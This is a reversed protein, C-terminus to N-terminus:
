IITIIKEDAGSYHRWGVKLKVRDGPSLGFACFPFTAIGNKIEVQRYPLYGANAELYVRVTVDDVLADTNKSYLEIAYDAKADATISDPGSLRLSPLLAKLGYSSELGQSGVLSKIVSVTKYNEFNHICGFNGNYRLVFTCDSFDLKAFPVYIQMLNTERRSMMLFNRHQKSSHTLVHRNFPMSLSGDRKANFSWIAFDSWASSGVVLNNIAFGIQSVPKLYLNSDRVNGTYRGGLAEVPIWYSDGSEKLGNTDSDIEFPEVHKNYLDIADSVPIVSAIPANESLIWTRLTIQTKGIKAEVVFPLSLGGWLFHRKPFYSSM